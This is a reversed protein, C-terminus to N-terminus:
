VRRKRESRLMGLVGGICGFLLTVGFRVARAYRRSLAKDYLVARVVHRGACCAIVIEGSRESRYKVFQTTDKVM